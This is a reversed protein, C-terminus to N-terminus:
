KQDDEPSDNLYRVEETHEITIERHEINGFEDIEISIETMTFETTVGTTFAGGVQTHIQQYISNHLESPAEECCTKRLVDQILSRMRREHALEAECEPCGSIHIEINAIMPLDTHGELLLVLSNLIQSCPIVQYRSM